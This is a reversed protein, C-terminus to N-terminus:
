AAEKAKDAEESLRELRESDSEVFNAIIAGLAILGAIVAATWGIIPIKM